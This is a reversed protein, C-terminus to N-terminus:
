IWIQSWSCVDVLAPTLACLPHPSTTCVKVEKILGNLEQLKTVIRFRDDAEAPFLHDIKGATFMNGFEALQARLTEAAQTRM